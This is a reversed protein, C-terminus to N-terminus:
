IMAKLLRKDAKSLSLFEKSAMVKSVKTFDGKSLSQLRIISIFAFLLVTLALLCIVLDGATGTYTTHAILSGATGLIMLCSLPILLYHIWSDLKLNKKSRIQYESIAHIFEKKEKESIIEGIDTIKTTTSETNESATKVEKDEM